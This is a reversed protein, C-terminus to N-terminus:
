SLEGVTVLFPFHEVAESNLLGKLTGTSQSLQSEDLLDQLRLRTEREEEVVLQERLEYSESVELYELKKQFFCVLKLESSLVNIWIPNAPSEEFHVLIALWEM